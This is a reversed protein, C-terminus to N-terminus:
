DGNLGIISGDTCVGTDIDCIDCNDKELGIRCGNTCVGTATDCIDCYRGGTRDYLRRYM